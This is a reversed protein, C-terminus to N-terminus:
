SRSSPCLNVRLLGLVAALFPYGWKCSCFSFINSGELFFDRQEPFMLPFRTLNVRRADVETEAFDTNVTLSTRISPTINYSLDFGADATWDTEVRDDSWTRNVNATTFPTAELGIGQNMDESRYPHRCKTPPVFGPKAELGVM